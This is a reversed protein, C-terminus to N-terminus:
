RQVRVLTPFVEKYYHKESPGSFFNTPRSNFYYVYLKEYHEMLNLIGHIFEFTTCYGAFSSPLVTFLEKGIADWLEYCRFKFEYFFDPDFHDAEQLEKLFLNSVLKKRL